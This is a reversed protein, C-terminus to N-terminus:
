VTSFFVRCFKQRMSTILFVYLFEVFLYKYEDSTVHFFYLSSHSPKLSAMNFLTTM